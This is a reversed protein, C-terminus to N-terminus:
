PSPRGAGTDSDPVDVYIPSTWARPRAETACNNDPVADSDICYNRRICNGDENYECGFPDGAILLEPQQIVRAYYLASRGARAFEEDKFEVTCGQGDAPCNFVKWENEVLEAIDEDPSLQPRIRVIEIREIAKRKDGARYCQGCLSEVREQGLAGLAFDPCGPQQEFSGVAAEAFASDRSGTAAISKVSGSRSPM